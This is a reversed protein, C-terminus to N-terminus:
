SRLRNFSYEKQKKGKNAENIVKEINNYLGEPFRVTKPVNSEKSKEFTFDKNSM